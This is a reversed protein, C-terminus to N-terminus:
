LGLFSIYLKLEWKTIVFYNQRWPIRYMGSFHIGSIRMKIIIKEIKRQLKLLNRYKYTSAWINFASMNLIILYEKHISGMITIFHDEKDWTINKERSEILWEAKM